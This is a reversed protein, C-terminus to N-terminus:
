RSRYGSNAAIASDISQNLVSHRGPSLHGLALGVVLDIILAITALDCAPDPVFLSMRYTTPHARGGCFRDIRIM